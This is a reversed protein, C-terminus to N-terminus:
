SLPLSLIWLGAATLRMMLALMPTQSALAHRRGAYIKTAEVHAVYVGLVHGAVILCVQSMWITAAGIMIPQVNATVTGLLDWGLGFPDSVLKWLQPGQSLLM